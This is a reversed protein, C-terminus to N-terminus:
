GRGAAFALDLRTLFAELDGSGPLVVQWVGAGDLEIRGEGDGVLQVRLAERSVGAADALALIRGMTKPDLLRIPRTEAARAAPDPKPPEPV